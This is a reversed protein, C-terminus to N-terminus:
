DYLGWKIFDVTPFNPNIYKKYYKKMHEIMKKQTEKGIAFFDNWILPNYDAINFMAYCFNIEGQKFDNIEIGVFYKEYEDTFIGCFDGIRRGGEPFKPIPGVTLRYKGQHPVENIKFRKIKM